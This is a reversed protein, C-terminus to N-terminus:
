WTLMRKSDKSMTEIHNHDGSILTDFSYSCAYQSFYADVAGINSSLRIEFDLGM